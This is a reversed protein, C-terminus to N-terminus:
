SNEILQIYLKEMIQPNASGKTEKMAQGVLFKISSEKGAKYDEVAQPNADIITQALDRLAAEDNQQVLGKEQALTEPDGGDRALVLLLDKAGRSNIDGAVLMSILKSFADPELGGLLGRSRFLM